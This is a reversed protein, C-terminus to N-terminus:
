VYISMHNAKTQMFVEVGSVKAFQFMRRNCITQFEDCITRFIQASHAFQNLSTEAPIELTQKRIATSLKKTGELTLNMIISLRKSKLVRLIENFQIFCALKLKSIFGNPFEINLAM